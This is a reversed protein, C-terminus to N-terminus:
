ISGLHFCAKAFDKLTQITSITRELMGFARNRFASINEIFFVSFPISVEQWFSTLRPFLRLFRNYGDKMPQKFYVWIKKKSQPSAIKVSKEITLEKSPVSCFNPLMGFM